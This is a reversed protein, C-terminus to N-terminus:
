SPRATKLYQQGAMYRTGKMPGLDKDLTYQVVYVAYAISKQTAQNCDTYLIIYFRVQVLNQVHLGSM